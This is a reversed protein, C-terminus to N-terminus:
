RADSSQPRFCDPCRLSLKGSHTETEIGHELRSRKRQTDHLYLFQSPSLLLSVVCGQLHSSPPKFGSGVCASTPRWGPQPPMERRVGLPAAWAPAEMAGPLGPSGQLMGAKPPVAGGVWSGAGVAAMKGGVVQPLWPALATHPGRRTHPGRFSHSPGQPCRRRSPAKPVEGATRGSAM